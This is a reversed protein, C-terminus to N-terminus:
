AAARRRDRGRGHRGLSSEDIFRFLTEIEPTLQDNGVLIERAHKVGVKSRYLL